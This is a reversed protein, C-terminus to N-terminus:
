SCYFFLLVTLNLNWIKIKIYLPNEFGWTGKRQSCKLSNVSGGECLSMNGFLYFRFNWRKTSQIPSFFFFSVHFLLHSPAWSPPLPSTTWIFVHAPFSLSDSVLWPLFIEIMGPSACSAAMLSFLSHLTPVGVIAIFGDTHNHHVVETDWFTFVNGLLFPM